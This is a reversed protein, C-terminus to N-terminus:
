APEEAVPRPVDLRVRTGGGPQSEVTCTGGAEEMRRALHELGNGRKVSVPDFGRGNDAVTVLLRNEALELQVRVETAAAHKLANNLAEKVAMMLRHRTGSSISLAPLLTPIDLRCRLGADRLVAGTYQSLYNSFGELSDHSPNAAWVIEELASALEKVAGNINRIPERVAEDAPASKLACGALLSIQTFRAGM